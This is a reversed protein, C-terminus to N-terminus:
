TAIFPGCLVLLVSTAIVPYQSLDRRLCSCAKPYALQTLFLRRRFYLWIAHCFFIGIVSVLITNLFGVVFIRAYTDTSEFSILSMLVDYGAAADLFAFGTKIGTAEMNDLTNGIVTVFFYLLGAVLAVQYFLGRIRPNNYFATSTADSSAKRNASKVEEITKENFM